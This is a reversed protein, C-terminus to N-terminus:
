GGNLWEMLIWFEHDSDSESYTTARCFEGIQYESTPPGWGNWRVFALCVRDVVGKEYFTM